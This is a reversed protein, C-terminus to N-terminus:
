YMNLSQKHLWLKSGPLLKTGTTTFGPPSQSQQDQSVWDAATKIWAATVFVDCVPRHSFCISREWGEPPQFTWSSASFSRTGPSAQERPQLHDDEYQIRGTFFLSLFCAKRVEESLLVLGMWSPGVQAAYSGGSPRAEGRWVMANPILNGCVRKPPCLGETIAAAKTQALERRIKMFCTFHWLPKFLGKLCVPM